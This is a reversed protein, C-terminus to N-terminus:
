EHLCCLYNAADVDTEQLDKLFDDYADIKEFLIQINRRVYESCGCNEETKKFDIYAQEIEKLPEWINEM